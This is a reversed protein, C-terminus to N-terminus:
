FLDPTDLLKGGADLIDLRQKMKEKTSPMSSILFNAMLKMGIAGKNGPTDNYVISSKKLEARETKLRQYEAALYDYYLENIERGRQKNSELFIMQTRAERIEGDLYEIRKVTDQEKKMDGLCLRALLVLDTNIGPVINKEDPTNNTTDGTTDSSKDSMTNNSINNSTNDDLVDGLTDSLKDPKEM